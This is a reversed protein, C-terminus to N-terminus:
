AHRRLADTITLRHAMVAPALGSLLGLLAALGLSEAVTSAPVSAIVFMMNRGDMPVVAVLALAGGVLCLGLSEALSFLTIRVPGFGLTKLIGVESVRERANLLMTNTTVMLCGFMVITGIATFFLPLNGWMSNFQSQFARLSLTRTRHDSAEYAQDIRAQLAPGAKEDDLLLTYTSVRDYRGGAAKSVENMYDWHMFLTQEDFARTLSEYIGVITLDLTGLFIDGELTITQGIEFEEREALGKGVICSTKTRMWKQWHDEPLTVEDGYVARFELPDCGFRGWYHEPSTDIYVGGFWTWDSVAKVEPHEALDAELRRPLTSFLSIASQTVLKNSASADLSTQMGVIFTRLFGFIAIAVFVSLVTLLSRFWNRRVHAFLLEIPFRM